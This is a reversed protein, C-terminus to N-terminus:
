RQTVEAHDKQVKQAPRARRRCKDELARLSTRSCRFILTNSVPMKANLISYFYIGFSTSLLPSRHDHHHHDFSSSDINIVIGIGVVIVIDIIITDNSASGNLMKQM